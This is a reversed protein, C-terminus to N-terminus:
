ADASAVGTDIKAAISKLDRANEGYHRGQKSRAGSSSKNPIKEKLPLLWFDVMVAYIRCLYGRCLSRFIARFTAVFDRLSITRLIRVIIDGTLLEHAGAGTHIPM